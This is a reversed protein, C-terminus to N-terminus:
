QHPSGVVQCGQCINVQRCRDLEWHLLCCHSELELYCIISAVYVETNQLTFL